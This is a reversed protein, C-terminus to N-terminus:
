TRSSQFPKNTGLPSRQCPMSRKKSNLSMKHAPQFKYGVSYAVLNLNQKRGSQKLFPGAFFVGESFDMSVHRDIQWRVDIGPRNGVYRARSLGSPVILPGSISYVGDERRQRWWFIWDPTLSLAHPLQFMVKPHVDRFNVPGPGTDALVGFYDGSPFLPNFSGLPTNGGRDGSAVDARLGLKPTLPVRSLSVGSETAVSWARISQQGFSGFQFM